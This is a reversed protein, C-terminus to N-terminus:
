FNTPDVLGSMPSSRGFGRAGKEDDRLDPDRREPVSGIVGDVVYVDNERLYGDTMAAQVEEESSFSPVEAPDLDISRLLSRVNENEQEATRAPGLDMVFRTGEGQSAGLLNAYVRIQGFYTLGELAEESLRQAEEEKGEERLEIAERMKESRPGPNFDYVDEVILRGDEERVNGPATQGILTAFKANNGGKLSERIADSSLISGETSGWTEYSFMNNGSEVVEKAKERLFNLEGRSLDDVSINFDDGQGVNEAFKQINIPAVKFLPSALGMTKVVTEPDFAGGRRPVPEVGPTELGPPRREKLVGRLENVSDAAEDLNEELWGKADEFGESLWNSAKTLKDKSSDVLSSVRDSAVDATDQFFTSISEGTEKLVSRTEQAIRQGTDVAKDTAAQLGVGDPISFSPLDVERLGKPTSRYLDKLGEPSRDYVENTFNKFSGVETFSM